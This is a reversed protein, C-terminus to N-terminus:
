REPPVVWPAVTFVIATFDLLEAARPLLFFALAAALRFVARGVADRPTFRLDALFAFFFFAGALFVFGAALASFFFFFCLAARATFFFVEAERAGPREFALFAGEFAAAFFALVLALALTFAAGFFALAFAAGLFALVLAAGFFDALFRAAFVAARGLRRTLWAVRGGRLRM